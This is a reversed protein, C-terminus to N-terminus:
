FDDENDDRDDLMLEDYLDRIRDFSDWVESDKDYILEQLIKNKKPEKIALELIILYM